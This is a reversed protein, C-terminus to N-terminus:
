EFISESLFQPKYGNDQAWQVATLIREKFDPQYAEYFPYYYQEHVLLDVFPPLGGRQKYGDLYPRIDGLATKDIVISSRIFVIDEKNDKWVFRQKIHRRQETTLYYSVAPLDDDVNFYGLLGKYGADRVARAGEVAAEGWHVTTVPGMLEKGAWRGIEGMVLECDKKVEEYGATRYPMDPFEGLAHFSLRIWDSQAKWEERFADSLQALNFNDTQYFLNIHVKTGYKEHVARLFALYPNDFISRYVGAHQHIDRLFWINDDISLRYGGAFHKLRYVVASVEEGSLEERAVLRNEYADLVVEATFYEGADKAAVGNVTVRSNREAAVKVVIRLSEGEMVGDRAHLMDGDIPSLLKM